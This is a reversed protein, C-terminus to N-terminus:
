HGNEALKPVIVRCIAICCIECIEKVPFLGAERSSPNPRRSNNSRTNM